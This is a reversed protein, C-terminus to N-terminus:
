KALSYILLYINDTEKFNSEKVETDNFEYINNDRVCRATYHGNTRKANLYEKVNSVNGYYYIASKLEYTKDLVKIKNKIEKKNELDKFYSIIINNSVKEVTSIEIISTKEKCFECNFDDIKIFNENLLSEIDSEIEPIEKHIKRLERIGLKTFDIKTNFDINSNLYTSLTEETYNFISIPDKCIFCINNCKTCIGKKTYVLEFQNELKFKDIFKYLFDTVDEQGFGFSKNNRKFSNIFKLNESTYTITSSKEKNYQLKTRALEKVLLDSIKAANEYNFNPDITDLRNTDCDSTKGDFNPDITDLRNTDSDCDPTKGDFNPDITDCVSTKGDFNPDITDCDSTKEDLLNIYKHMIQSVKVGYQYEIRKMIDQVGVTCLERLIIFDNICDDIESNQKEITLNQEDISILSQLVSNAWCDTSCNIFGLPMLNPNSQHHM